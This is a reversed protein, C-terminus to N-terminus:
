LDEKNSECEYKKDCSTICSYMRGGRDTLPCSIKCEKRQEDCSLGIQNEMSQRDELVRKRYQDVNKKLVQDMQDKTEKDIVSAEETYIKENELRIRTELKDADDNSASVIVFLLFFSFILVAFLIRTPIM